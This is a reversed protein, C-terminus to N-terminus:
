EKTRLLLTEIREIDSKLEIYLQQLESMQAFMGRRVKNLNRKTQQIEALMVEDSGFLDLQVANM